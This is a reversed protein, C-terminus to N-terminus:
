WLVTVCVRARARRRAEGWAEQRTNFLRLARKAGTRSVAWRKCRPMVHYAQTM